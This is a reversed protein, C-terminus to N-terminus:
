SLLIKVDYIIILLNNYNKCFYYIYSFDNKIQKPVQEMPELKSLHVFLGDLYFVSQSMNEMNVISVKRQMILIVFQDALALVKKNINRFSYLGCTHHM